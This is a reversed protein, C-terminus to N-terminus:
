SHEGTPSISDTTTPHRRSSSRSNERRGQTYPSNIITLTGITPGPAVTGHNYVRANLTANGTVTGQSGIQIGNVGAVSVVGGNTVTLSGPGDDGVYMGSPDARYRGCRVQATSSPRVPAPRSLRAALTPMAM